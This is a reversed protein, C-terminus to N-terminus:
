YGLIKDWHKGLKYYENYIKIWKNRKQREQKTDQPLWRIDNSIHSLISVFPNRKYIVYLGLRTLGSHYYQPMYTKLMRLYLKCLCQNTLRGNHKHIELKNHKIQEYTLPYNIYLNIKQLSDEHSFIM